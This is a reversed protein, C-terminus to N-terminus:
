AEHWLHQDVRAATSELHFDLALSLLLHGSAANIRGLAVTRAGAQADLGRKVPHRDAEIFVALARRGLLAATLERKPAVTARCQM